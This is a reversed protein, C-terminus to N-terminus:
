GKRALAGAKQVWAKAIATQDTAPYASPAPPAQAKLLHRIYRAASRRNHAHLARYEASIWHKSRKPPTVFSRGLRLGVAFGFVFTLPIGSDVRGVFPGNRSPRGHRAPRHVDLARAAARDADMFLPTVSVIPVQGVRLLVEAVRQQQFASLGPALMM